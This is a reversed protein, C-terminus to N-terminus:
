SLYLYNGKRAINPGAISSGSHGQTIWENRYLYKRVWNVLRVRAQGDAFLPQSMVVKKNDKLNVKIIVAFSPATPNRKQHRGLHIQVRFFIEFINIIDILNSM